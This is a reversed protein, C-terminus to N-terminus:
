AHSVVQQELVSPLTPMDETRWEDEWDFRVEVTTPEKDGELWVEWWPMIAEFLLIQKGYFFGDRAALVFCVDGGGRPIVDMIGCQCSRGDRHRISVIRGIAARYKLLAQDRVQHRAERALKEALEKRYRIKYYVLSLREFAITVLTLTLLVIKKFM